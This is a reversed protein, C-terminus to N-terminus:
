ISCPFRPGWGAPTKTVLEYPEPATRESSEILLHDKEVVGSLATPRRLDFAANSVRYWTPYFTDGGKQLFRAACRDSHRKPLLAGCSRSGRQGAAHRPGLAAKSPTGGCSRRGRQGAVDHRALICM